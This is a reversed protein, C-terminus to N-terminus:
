GWCVSSSSTSSPSYIQFMERGDVGPYRAAQAVLGEAGCCLSTKDGQVAYILCTYGYGCLHIASCCAEAVPPYGLVPCWLTGLGSLSDSAVPM